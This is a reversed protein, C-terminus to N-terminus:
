EENTADGIFLRVEREGNYPECTLSKENECGGWFVFVWSEGLVATLTVVDEKDLMMMPLKFKFFEHDSPISQVVEDRVIVRNLDGDIKQIKVHIAANGTMLVQLPRSTLMHSEIPYIGILNFYTKIGEYQAEPDISMLDFLTHETGAVIRTHFEEADMSFAEVLPAKEPNLYATEYTFESVDQYFTRTVKNLNEQYLSYFDVESIKGKHTSITLFAATTPLSVTVSGRSFSDTRVLAIMKNDQHRPKYIAVGGKVSVKTFEHTNEGLRTTVVEFSGDSATKTTYFVEGTEPNELTVDGGSVTPFHTFHKTVGSAFATNSLLLFSLVFFLCRALM